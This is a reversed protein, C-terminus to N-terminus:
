ARKVQGRTMGLRQLERLSLARWPVLVAADEIKTHARIAAMARREDAEAVYYSKVLHGTKPWKLPVTLDAVWGQIGGFPVLTKNGM